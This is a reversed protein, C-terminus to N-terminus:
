EDDDGEEEGTDDLEVDQPRRLRGDAGVVYYRDHHRHYFALGFYTGRRGCRIFKMTGADLSAELAEHAGELGLRDIVDRLLPPPDQLVTRIQEQVLEWEEPYWRRIEALKEDPVQLNSM